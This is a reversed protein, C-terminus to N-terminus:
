NKLLYLRLKEEGFTHSKNIADEYLFDPPCTRIMDQLADWESQTVTLEWESKIRTWDYAYECWYSENYPKWKDPGNASKERNASSEVTILLDPDELSNAFAIKKTSSWM